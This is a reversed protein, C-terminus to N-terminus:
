VQRFTLVAERKTKSDSSRHCCIDALQSVVKKAEGSAARAIMDLLQVAPVSGSFCNDSGLSGVPHGADHQINSKQSHSKLYFEGPSGSLGLGSLHAVDGAKHETSHDAIDSSTETPGGPNKATVQKTETVVLEAKCNKVFYVGEDISDASPLCRCAALSLARGVATDLKVDQDTLFVYGSGERSIAVTSGVFFGADPNLRGVEKEFCSFAEKVPNVKSKAKARPKAKPKAATTTM